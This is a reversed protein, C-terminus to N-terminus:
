LRHNKLDRARPHRRVSTPRYVMALAFGAQLLQGVVLTELEGSCPSCRRCITARGRTSLIATGPLARHGRTDSMNWVALHPNTTGVITLPETAFKSKLPYFGFIPEQFNLSQCIGFSEFCCSHSPVPLLAEWHDRTNRSAVLEAGRSVYPTKPCAHRPAADCLALTQGGLSERRGAV